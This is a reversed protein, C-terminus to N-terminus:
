RAVSVPSGQLSSQRSQYGKPSGPPTREGHSSLESQHQARYIRKLDLLGYHRAISIPHGTDTTAPDTEDLLMDPWLAREMIGKLHPIPGFHPDTSLGCVELVNQRFADRLEMPLAQVTLLDMSVLLAALAVRSPSYSSCSGGLCTSLETLYRTLERLVHVVLDYYTESASPM